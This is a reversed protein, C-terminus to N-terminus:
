DTKIYHPLTLDCDFNLKLGKSQAQLQFMAELSRLLQHLDFEIKSLTVRGAEIKSMELVDNILALLYESSQNIIEIYRQHNISLSKDQQMLQTFGILLASFLTSPTRM